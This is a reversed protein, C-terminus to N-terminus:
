RGRELGCEILTKQLLPSRSLTRQPPSEFGWGWGHQANVGVEGHGFGGENVLLCRVAGGLWEKSPMVSVRRRM